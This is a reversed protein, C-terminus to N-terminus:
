AGNEGAALTINALERALADATPWGYGIRMSRRSEDFWHGPGVQTRCKGSLTAYFEEVDVSVAHRFRPFCVVGGQPTVWELLTQEQMWRRLIAFNATTITQIAVLM